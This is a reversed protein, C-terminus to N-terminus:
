ARAGYVDDVRRQDTFGGRRTFCNCPPEDLQAIAARCRASQGRRANGDPAALRGDRQARVTGALAGRGRGGRRAASALLEGEGGRTAQELSGLAAVADREEGRAGVTTITRSVSSTREDVREGPARNLARAQVGRDRERLVRRIAREAGDVREERWACGPRVDHVDDDADDLGLLREARLASLPVVQEAGFRDAKV